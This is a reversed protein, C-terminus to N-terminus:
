IIVMQFVKCLSIDRMEVKLIQVYSRFSM